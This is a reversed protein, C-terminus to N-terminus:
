ANATRPLAVGVTRYAFGTDGSCDFGAPTTGGWVHPVGVYQDAVVLILAAAL